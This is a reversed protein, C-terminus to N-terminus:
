VICLLSYKKQEIPVDKKFCNIILGLFKMARCTSDCWTEVHCEGGVCWPKKNIEYTFKIFELTLKNKEVLFNLKELTSM